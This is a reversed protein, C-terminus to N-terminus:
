QGARALLQAAVREINGQHAVLMAALEAHLDADRVTPLLSELKRVVWAQGRNLFALRAPIRAIAMAKDHFAGTNPSPTGQLRRIARTLVGCWRAEDRHIAMVLPKPDTDGALQAVTRLAVRAGAREAELLENLAALLEERGAYGMYRDDAEHAFCAPSAAQGHEPPPETGATLRAAAEDAIARLRDAAGVIANVRGVGQGAYLAMAEFEGMSRLPSDTSFLHIPRGDEDGIVTRTDPRRGVALVALLPLLPLGGHALAELWRRPAIPAPLHLGRETFFPIVRGGVVAIVAGILWLAAWVARRLLDFDGAALAHLAVADVLTLLLLLGVLPYNRRQRVRRLQWGLRAAVVPLFALELAVLM